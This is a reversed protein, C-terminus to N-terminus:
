NVLKYGRGRVTVIYRPTSPDPEIKARLRSVLKEIRTDDVDNIYSVGWVTEVIQYKDTLKSVRTFLLSLLKFELETLPPAPNGEIWVDGSDHDVWIGSPLERQIVHQRRVFGAMLKGFIAVKTGKEHVLGWEGVAQLARRDVQEGSGIAVATLTAREGPGLQGWLRSCESRITVDHLMADLVLDVGQDRYDDPHNLRLDILHSLAGRLLRPHGGTQAWLFDQEQDSLGEEIGNHRALSDALEDAQTRDFLRMIFTHSASLEVFEATQEDSRKSGLRRVTATVYMLNEPYKDKLARLNLFVRGDLADFAEDFEDLLLVLDRQGEEIIAQMANNFSLPVQFQTDPEVIRRYHDSLRTSLADSLDPMSEQVARLVLEYLGQGTVEFMSNCDIYVFAAQRGTLKRYQEAMPQSRLHRLLTSKGTNSLGVVAACNSEGLAQLLKNIEDHRTITHPM